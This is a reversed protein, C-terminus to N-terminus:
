VSLCVCCVRVCACVCSLPVLSFRKRATLLNELIGPLLGVRVSRKVFCSGTPTKIYEDAALRLACLVLPCAVYMCMYM